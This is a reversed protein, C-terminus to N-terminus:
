GSSAVDLKLVRRLDDELQQASLSSRTQMKPYASSHPARGGFINATLGPTSHRSNRGSMSTYSPAGSDSDLEAPSQHNNPQYERRLRSSIPRPAPSDREQPIAPINPSYSQSVPAQQIGPQPTSPGSRHRIGQSNPSAPHIESPHDPFYSNMDPKNPSRLPSAKILLRKLAESKEKREKEDLTKPSNTSQSKPSKLAEMREKYPTTFSPGIQMSQGGNGDLEFPFVSESNTDGPTRPPNRPTDDFPSRHGARIDPSQAKPSERAKRAAEFMFDLPSPERVGPVPKESRFPTLTETDANAQGEGDLQVTSSSAPSATVAPHSKSYFSPMPLSSAAPSSHFTPGAYAQKLPTTKRDPSLVSTQSATRAHPPHRSSQSGHNQKKSGQSKKRPASNQGMSSTENSLPAVAAGTKALPGAPQSESNPTNKPPSLSIPDNQPRRPSRRPRQSNAVPTSM